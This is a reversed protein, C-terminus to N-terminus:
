LFAQKQQMHVVFTCNLSCILKTQDTPINNVRRFIDIVFNPALDYLRRKGQCLINLELTGSEGFGKQSWRLYNYKTIAVVTFTCFIFGTCFQVPKM